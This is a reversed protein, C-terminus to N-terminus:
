RESDRERARILTTTRAMWLRMTIMEPAQRLKWAVILRM